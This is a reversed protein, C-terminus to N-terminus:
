GGLGLIVRTAQDVVALEGATLRGAFEGLRTEPDIAIMQEVLIATQQGEVVVTPRFSASRRGTSTPAVVWTSLPVDDSQLVVAFRAGQQEHGRVNRPTRVRYIDGRMTALWKPLSSERQRCMRLTASSRRQKRESRHAVYARRPTYFRRVFLRPAPSGTDKASVM